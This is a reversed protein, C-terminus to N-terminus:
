LFGQGSIHIDSYYRKFFYPKICPNSYFKININTHLTLLEVGSFFDRFNNFKEKSVPIGLIKIYRYCCFNLYCMKYCLHKIGSLYLKRTIETKWIFNLLMVSKKNSHVYIQSFDVSLSVSLCNKQM